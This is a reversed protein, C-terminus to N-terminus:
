ITDTKVKNVSDEYTLKAKEKTLDLSKLQLFNKGGKIIPWRITAM